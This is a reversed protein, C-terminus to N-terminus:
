KWGVPTKGKVLVGQEQLDKFLAVNSLRKLTKLTNQLWKAPTPTSLLLVLEIGEQHTPVSVGEVIAQM